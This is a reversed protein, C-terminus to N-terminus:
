SKVPLRITKALEKDTEPPTDANAIVQALSTDEEQKEEKIEIESITLNWDNVYIMISYKQQKKM